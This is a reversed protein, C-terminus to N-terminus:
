ENGYIKDRKIFGVVLGKLFSMGYLMHTLFLVSPIAVIYFINKYKLFARVAIVVSLLLYAILPAFYLPTFFPLLVLLSLCYLLFFLPLFYNIKLSNKDGVAIFAGRHYGYQMHQRLYPVLSNRRHHYIIVNPSYLIKEHEKYVIDNCLKSDEGPWFNNNFGGIRTFLKKTILFNMSPYDDVFRTEKPTFRYGYGGSGVPSVLIEDFVKEWINTNKPLVGPGCVCSVDKKTFLTEAHKLWDSKPYADDDIFALITGNAHKAGIDRKLAPRTINGTPIIRLFPYKTLLAKDEKRLENPLVIVEFNKYTQHVFAPLNENTVYDNIERVPIIISIHIKM